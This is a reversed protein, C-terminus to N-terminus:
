PHYRFIKVNDRCGGNKDNARWGWNNEVIKGETFSASITKQPASIIGIHGGDTVIDGPWCKNLAPIGKGILKMNPVEENYWQKCVYPRKKTDKFSSILFALLNKNGVENPLDQSVGGAVLMEYVFLNCKPEGPAFTVKGDSSTRTSGGSWNSSGIQAKAQNLVKTQRSSM